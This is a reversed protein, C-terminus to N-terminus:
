QSGFMVESIINNIEEDLLGAENYSQALEEQVRTLYYRGNVMLEEITPVPNDALWSGPQAKAKQEIFHEQFVEAQHKTWLYAQDFVMRQNIAEYSKDLTRDDNMMAIYMAKYENRTYKQERIPKSLEKRTREYEKLYRDYYIGFEKASPKGNKAM